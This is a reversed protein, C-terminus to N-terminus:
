NIYAVQRENCIFRWTRDAAGYEYNSTLVEDGPQLNLLHAVINVGMTANPVFVFDDRAIGLFPAIPERAEQVLDTLRRGLFEVPQYELERQWHQYQEFVPRPCAGFSGNNLFTMDSRLLFQDAVASFFASRAM